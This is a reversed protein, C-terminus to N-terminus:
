GVTVTATGYYVRHDSCAGGCAQSIALSDGFRSNNAFRSEPIFIMDIKSGLGCKGNDTKNTTGEGYGLCVPDTDDLERFRGWNGPNITTNASAAYWSNLRDYHPETNFDGAIIVTDGADDWAELQARVENLQTNVMSYPTLHTACFRLRTSDVPACLLSRVEGNDQPDVTLSIRDATGLPRRSFIANGFGGCVNLASEFRSYNSTLPWGAAALRAQVEKYQDWCIENLAVLDADRNLISAVLGDVMGNTTSGDNMVYGSVNWQWVTVTQNTAASAPIAMAM